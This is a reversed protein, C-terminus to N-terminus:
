NPKQLTRSFFGEEHTSSQTDKFDLSKIKM